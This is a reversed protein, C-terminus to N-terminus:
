ALATNQREGCEAIPNGDVGSVFIRELFSASETAARTRSLNYSIEAHAAPWLTEVAERERLQFLSVIAVEHYPVQTLLAVVRRHEVVLYLLYV